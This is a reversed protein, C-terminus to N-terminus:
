NETLNMVLYVCLWHIAWLLLSINLEPALIRFEKSWRDVSKSYHECIIIRTRRNIAVIEKSKVACRSHAINESM